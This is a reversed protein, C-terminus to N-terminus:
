LYWKNVSKLLQKKADNGTVHNAHFFYINSLHNKNYFGKTIMYGCTFKEMPYQYLKLEKVERLDNYGKNKLLEYMCEQDNKNKLKNQYEIIENIFQLTRENKNITVNGTCSWLHFNPNPPPADNQFIIDYKNIYEDWFDIPPENIIVVDADIFHICNYNDLADKLISMKTHTIKNYENSGYNEFSKSINNQLWKKLYIKDNPDIHTELLTFIEEDLCYFTMSLNHVCEKWNLILNLAFDKYGYNSYTIIQPLM